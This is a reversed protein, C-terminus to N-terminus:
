GMLEVRQNGDAIMRFGRGKAEMGGLVEDAANILQDSIDLETAVQDLLYCMSRDRLDSKPEKILQNYMAMNEQANELVHKKVLLLCASSSVDTNFQEMLENFLNRKPDEKKGDTSKKYEKAYDLLQIKYNNLDSLLIKSVYKYRLETIQRTQKELEKEDDFGCQWTTESTFTEMHRMAFIGCDVKNNLTRWTMEVRKIESMEMTKSINCGVSDLYVCVIKKPMTCTGYLRFKSDPSRKQEEFNLLETFADLANAVVQVNPNFYKSTDTDKFIYNTVLTETTTMKEGMVVKKNVYPSKLAHSLTKIGREQNIDDKKTPHGTQLFPVSALLTDVDNEDKETNTEEQIEKLVSKEKKTEELKINEYMAIEREVKNMEEKLKDLGWEQIDQKYGGHEMLWTRMFIINEEEDVYEQEEEDDGEQEKEDHKPGSKYEGGVSENVNDNVAGEKNEYTTKVKPINEVVNEDIVVEENDKNEDTTKVEKDDNGYDVVNDLINEVVNEDMVVEENEKNAVVEDRVEENDIVEDKEDGAEEEGEEDGGEEEGVVDDDMDDEEKDDQGKADESEKDGEKEDDDEEEYENNDKEEDGGKNKLKHSKEM